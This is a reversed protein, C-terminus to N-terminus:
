ADANNLLKRGHFFFRVFFPTWFVAFSLGTALWIGSGPRGDYRGIAMVLLIFIFSGLSGIAFCYLGSCDVQNLWAMRILSVAALLMFVALFPIIISAKSLFALLM